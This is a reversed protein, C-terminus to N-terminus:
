PNKRRIVAKIATIKCLEVIDDDRGLSRLSRAGPGM